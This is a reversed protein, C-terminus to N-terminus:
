RTIRRTRRFGAQGRRDMIMASSIYRRGCDTLIASSFGNARCALFSLEWASGSEGGCADGHDASSAYLTGTSRDAALFERDCAVIAWPGIYVPGQPNIEMGGPAVPLDPGHLPDGARTWTRGGDASVFVPAGNQEALYTAYFRGAGDAVVAPDGGSEPFAAEHWTTGGDLSFSVGHV